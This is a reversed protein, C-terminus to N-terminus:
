GALMGQRYEELARRREAQIFRSHRANLDKWMERMQLLARSKTQIIMMSKKKNNLTTIDYYDFCLNRWSEIYPHNYEQELGWRLIRYPIGSSIDHTEAEGEIFDLVIDTITDSHRKSFVDKIIHNRLPLDFINKFDALNYKTDCFASWVWHNLARNKMQKEISFLQDFTFPENTFMNTPYIPIPFLFDQHTLQTLLYKFFYHADFIYTNRKNWDAVYIINKPPECTIPDNTNIIKFRSFIWRRLFERLIIRIRKNEHFEAVLKAAYTPSIAFGTATPNIITKLSFLATEANIAWNLTASSSPKIFWVPKSSFDFKISPGNYLKKHIFKKKKPTSRKLSSIGM